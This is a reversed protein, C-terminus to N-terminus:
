ENYEKVFPTLAVIRSRKIANSVMRQHKACCGSIRRPVIKCNFNIYKQLLEVDKYDIHDVGKACLVCAKKYQNNKNFKKGAPRATTKNNTTM